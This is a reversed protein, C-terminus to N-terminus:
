MMYMLLWSVLPLQKVGCAEDPVGDVVGTGEVPVGDVVGTGEVDPVDDVVCDIGCVAVCDAVGCDVTWPIYM